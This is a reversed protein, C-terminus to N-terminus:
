KDQAMLYQISKAKVQHPKIAILSVICTNKEYYTTGLLKRELSYGNVILRKLLM